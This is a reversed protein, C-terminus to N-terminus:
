QNSLWATSWAGCMVKEVDQIVCVPADYSRRDGTGLQGSGNWGWSWGSKNDLTVATHRAGCSISTVNVQDSAFPMAHDLLRPESQISVYENSKGASDSLNRCPLGLQGSENWGWIYVDGSESLACSHWGGCAIQVINIGGLVEIEQPYENSEISGHGLQGRSGSGWSYVKGENTLAIFHEKGCAVDVFKPQMNEMRLPPLHINGFEDLAIVSHENSSVKVFKVPEAQDESTVTLVDVWECTKVYIAQKKLMGNIDIGVAFQETCTVQKLSNGKSISGCFGSVGNWYGSVISDNNTTIILRSWGLFVDLSSDIESEFVPMPQCCVFSKRTDNESDNLKKSSIQEFGNFGCYYLKM